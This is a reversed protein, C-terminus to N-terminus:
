SRNRHPATWIRVPTRCSRTTRCRAAQTYHDLSTTALAASLHLEEITALRRKDDVDRSDDLKVICSRPDKTCGRADLGLTLLTERSSGSLHGTTLVDSRRAAFYDDVHGERVHVTSCGTILVALAL